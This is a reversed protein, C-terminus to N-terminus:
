EEARSAASLEKVKQQLAAVENEAAIRKSKELDLVRQSIMSLRCAHRWGTLVHGMCDSLLHVFSQPLASGLAPFKAAADKGREIRALPYNGELMKGLFYCTELPSDQGIEDACPPHQEETGM